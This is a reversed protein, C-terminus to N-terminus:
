TPETVKGGTFSTLMSGIFYKRLLMSTLCLNIKTLSRHFIWYHTLIRDPPSLQSMGPWLFSGLFFNSPLSDSLELLIPMECIILLLIFCYVLIHFYIYSFLFDCLTYWVCSFWLKCRLLFCVNKVKWGTLHLDFIIKQLFFDQLMM